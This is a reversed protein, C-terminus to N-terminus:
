ARSSKSSTIVQSCSVWWVTASVTSITARVLVSGVIAASGTSRTVPMASTSEGASAASASAGNRVEGASSRARNTSSATGVVSSSCRLRWSWSLGSPWRQATSLAQSDPGAASTTGAIRRAYVVSGVSLANVIQNEMAGSRASGSM